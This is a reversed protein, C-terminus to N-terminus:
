MLEYLRWAERMERVAALAAANADADNPPVDAHRTWGRAELQQRFARAFAKLLGMTLPKPLTYDDYDAWLVLTKRLARVAAKKPFYGSTWVFVAHKAYYVPQLRM